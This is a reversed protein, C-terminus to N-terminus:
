LKIMKLVCSKTRVLYLGRALDETNIFEEGSTEFTKMLRGDISYISVTEVGDLNHLMMVDHVPNPTLSVNAMTNESQSGMVESCNIKRISALPIVDTATGQEVILSTNNEFYVRDSEGMTFSKETGDNLTVIMQTSQATLSFAFGMFLAMLLLGRQLLHKM